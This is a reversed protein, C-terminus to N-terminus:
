DHLIECNPLRTALLRAFDVSVETHRMDLHRLRTFAALSLVERDSILTGSIDLDQLKQLNALAAVNSVKTGSVVLRSLNHVQSVHELSQNGIATSSLNLDSLDHLKSIQKIDEDVIPEGALDMSKLTLDAPLSMRLYMLLKLINKKSLAETKTRLLDYLVTQALVNAQDDILQLRSELDTSVTENCGFPADKARRLVAAFVMTRLPALTSFNKLVLHEKNLVHESLHLAWNEEINMEAAPSAFFGRAELHSALEFMRRERHYFGKVIHAWNHLMMRRLKDGHPADLLYVFSGDTWGNFETETCNAHQPTRTQADLMIIRQVIMKDPLQHWCTLVDDPLASHMQPMWGQPVVIAVPSLDEPEYLAVNTSKTSSTLNMTAATLRLESM